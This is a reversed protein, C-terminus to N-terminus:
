PTSRAPPFCLAAFSLLRLKTGRGQIVGCIVGQGPVAMGLPGATGLALGPVLHLM